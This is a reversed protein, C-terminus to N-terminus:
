PCPQGWQAAVQMVDAVTISGDGDKDFAAGYNSTGPDGDPDPDATTLRWRAAVAQIDAVSVQRDGDLDPCATRCAPM